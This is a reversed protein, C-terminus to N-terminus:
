RVESPGGSLVNPSGLLFLRDSDRVLARATDLGAIAPDAETNDPIVIAYDIGLRTMESLLAKKAEELSGANGRYVSIHVHADIIM